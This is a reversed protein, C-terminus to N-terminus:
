SSKLSALFALVSQPLSAACYHSLCRKCTIRKQVTTTKSGVGCASQGYADAMHVKLEPDAEKTDLPKREKCARFSAACYPCYCLTGVHLLWGTKLKTRRGCWLCSRSDASYGAQRAWAGLDKLYAELPDGGDSCTGSQQGSMQRQAVKRGASAAAARHAQKSAM